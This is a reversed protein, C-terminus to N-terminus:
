LFISLILLQPFKHNIFFINVNVQLFHIALMINYLGVYFESLMIAHM